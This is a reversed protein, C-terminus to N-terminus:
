TGSRRTQHPGIIVRRPGEEGYRRLVARLWQTSSHLVDDGGSSIPQTRVQKCAVDAVANAIFDPVACVPAWVSHGPNTPDPM